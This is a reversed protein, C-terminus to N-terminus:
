RFKNEYKKPTSARKSKDKEKEEKKIINNSASSKNLKEGKELYQFNANINIKINNPPINGFILRRISDTM